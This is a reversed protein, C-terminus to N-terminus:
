ANSDGEMFRPWLLGQRSIAELLYGGWPAQAGPACSPVRSALFWM